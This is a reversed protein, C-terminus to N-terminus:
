AGEWVVVFRTQNSAGTNYAIAGGSAQAAILQVTDGANLRLRKTVGAGGAPGSGAFRVIGGWYVTSGNVRLGCAYFTATSSAALNFQGALLYRGSVPATYHASAGTTIGGYTDVDVTTLPVIAPSALSTNALTSSGATYHARAAPPYSLFRIADRVNANLWAATIPTPVATLPPVPLPQTGSTACVWRISVTPLDAAITQL